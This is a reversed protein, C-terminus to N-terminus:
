AHAGKSRCRFTCWRWMLCCSASMRVRAPIGGLVLFTYSVGLNAQRVGEVVNKLYRWMGSVPAHAGSAIDITIRIGPGMSAVGGM